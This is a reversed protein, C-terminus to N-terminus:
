SSILIKTHNSPVVELPSIHATQVPSYALLITIM